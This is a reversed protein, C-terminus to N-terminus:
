HDQRTTDATTSANLGAAIRAVSIAESRSLPPLTVALEAAWDNVDQRGTPQELHDDAAEDRLSDPESGPLYMEGSVQPTLHGDSTEAPAKRVGGSVGASADAHPGSSAHGTM